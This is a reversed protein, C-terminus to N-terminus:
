RGGGSTLACFVPADQAQMLREVEMESPLGGRGGRGGVSLAAATAAFRACDAISRGQVLAHAYAGHFCDGAGTTDVVEVAHARMHWAQGEADMVYIGRAGDTLIVATRDETWLAGLADWARAHGTYQCAFDLPIVLHDAAAILRDTAEGISWEIDAIVPVGLGRARRVVDASITAYSDILLADAAGLVADPLDPSTGLRVDDDFAIFREGDPSVIITSEISRCGPNRPADDIRVGNARLDEVAPDDPADSLWGIFSANGGLRAVAVLATAINGGFSRERRLVRGKGSRFPADVYAIEDISHAGFGIISPM